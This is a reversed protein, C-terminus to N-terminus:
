SGSPNEIKKLKDNLLINETYSDKGWSKNFKYKGLGNQIAVWSGANKGSAINFPVVIKDNIIKPAGLKINSMSISLGKLKSRVVGEIALKRGEKVVDGSSMETEWKKLYNKINPESTFAPPIEEGMKRYLRAFTHVGAMGDAAPGHIGLVKQIVKITKTIKEEETINEFGLLKLIKRNGEKYNIKGNSFKNVFDNLDGESIVGIREEIKGPSSESTLLTEKPPGASEPPGTFEENEPDNKKSLNVFDVNKLDEFISSLGAALNKYLAKDKSSIKDPSSFIKIYPKTFSFGKKDIVIKFDGDDTNIEVKDGDTWDINGSGKKLVDEIKKFFDTLKEKTEEKKTKKAELDNGALSEANKLASAILDEKKKTYKNTAIIGVIERNASQM